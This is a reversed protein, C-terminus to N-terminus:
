LRGRGIGFYEFGCSEMHKRSFMNRGDFMVAQKMSRGIKKFDLKEFEPWETLIVLCDCGKATTYADACFKVGKLRKKAKSMAVPDYAKVQAGEGMLADIIDLSPANRMDDTNPKFALGLVGIVKDKLIWLKDEIM